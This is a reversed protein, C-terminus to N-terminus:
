VKETVRYEMRKGLMLRTHAILGPLANLFFGVIPMLSFELPLLFQRWRPFSAPRPPRQRADIVLMVVLALICLTLIFASLRPLNYGIVTRKFVPNILSVGTAGLTIIFWNVPWLFHEQLVKLLLITKDWFPMKPYTLWWKIFLPDDSVGWAWRKDQEYKNVLSKWYTTSEAADTLTYLFIPRAEVGGGMKYFSKFFIRYDEPIVDRDWYGVKKLLKLSLSYTSNPILRDTRVLIGTRWISSITAVVRIPAPVRWINNYQVNASQWFTLYRKQSKLFEFSLYAFYQRDFFSDVDCSTVTIFDQDLNRAKIIKQAYPIAWAQNSSKGKVEGPRDPHLTYVLTGVKQRFEGVLTKAKEASTKERKEMALVVILRKKPFTQCVLSELVRRLKEIKEQYNPIIVLHYVKGFPALGRAEKLWDIKETKKIKRHALIAMLALSFSKYLWYIDYFLVFYAVILPIFFSGWLPFSILSWSFFGPLIEM